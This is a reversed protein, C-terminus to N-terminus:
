VAEELIREVEFIEINKLVLEKLITERNEAVQPISDWLHEDNYATWAANLIEALGKCNKAPVVLKFRANIRESEGKDSKAIGTAGLM